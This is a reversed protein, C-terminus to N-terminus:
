QSGVLLLNNWARAISQFCTLCIGSKMARMNPPIPRGEASIIDDLLIIETTIFVM